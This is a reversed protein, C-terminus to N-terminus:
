VYQQHSYSLIDTHTYMGALDIVTQSIKDVVNVHSKFNVVIVLKFFWSVLFIIIIHFSLIRVVNLIQINEPWFVFVIVLIFMWSFKLNLCSNIKKIDLFMWLYGSIIWRYHMNLPAVLLVPKREWADRKM